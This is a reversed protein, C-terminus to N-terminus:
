TRGFVDIHSPRVYNTTLLNRHPFVRRNDDERELIMICLCIILWLPISSRNLILVPSGLNSLLTFIFIVCLLISEKNRVSFYASIASYGVTAMILLQSLIGVVGGKFAPELYGNDFTERYGLGFGSLISEGTWEDIMSRTVSVDSSADGGFRNATIQWFWDQDDRLVFKAKLYDFGSWDSFIFWGILGIFVIFVIIKFTPLRRRNFKYWYLFFIPIGGYLFVKSISLIGCLFTAAITLWGWVPIQNENSYFYIWGFSAISVMIGLEIPQDFIGTFRGMANASAWVSKTLDGHRSRVFFGIFEDMNFVMQLGAVVGNVATLICTVLLVSRLARKLSNNGLFKSGHVVLWILVIPQICHQFDALILNSSIKPYDGLLTVSVVWITYFSQIVILLSLTPSISFVSGSFFFPVFLLAAVGYIVVHDLRLGLDLLLYPGFASAIVLLLIRLYRKEYRTQQISQLSQMHSTEPLELFAENDYIM